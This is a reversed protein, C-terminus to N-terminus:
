AAGGVGQSELWGIAQTLNEITADVAVPTALHRTHANPLWVCRMGARAAAERGAPADEFVVYSEAPVGLREATLLFIDPVEKGCAVEAGTVEVAFRGIM